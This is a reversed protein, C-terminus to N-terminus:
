LPVTTSGSLHIGLCPCRGLPVRLNGMLTQWDMSVGPAIPATNVCNLADMVSHLVVSRAFIYKYFGRNDWRLCDSRRCKNFHLNYRIKGLPGEVRKGEVHQGAIKPIYKYGSRTFARRLLARVLWKQARAVGNM